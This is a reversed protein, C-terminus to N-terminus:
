QKLLGKKNMKIVHFTPTSAWITGPIMYDIGCGRINYEELCFERSHSGGAEMYNKYIMMSLYTKLVTDQVAHGYLVLCFFLFCTRCLMTQIDVIKIKYLQKM